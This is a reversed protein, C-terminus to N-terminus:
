SQQREFRKTSALLALPLTLVIALYLPYYPSIDYLLGGIYPATFSTLMVVAQPISIWRARIHEPALPSIIASMLSWMVYSGGALFFAVLLLSFNGFAILLILSSCCIIMSAAVSYTKRSLDGLRGLLIGLVASGFFSVSGLIGIELDGYGYVDGLFNPVFPRFLMLTFIILAFFVSVSFLKRTKLLSLL